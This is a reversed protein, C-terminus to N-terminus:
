IQVVVINGIENLFRTSCFGTFTFTFSNLLMVTNLYQLSVLQGSGPMGQRDGASQQRNIGQTEQLYFRGSHLYLGHGGM